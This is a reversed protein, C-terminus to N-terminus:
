SYFWCRAFTVSASSIEIKVPFVLTHLLTGPAVALPGISRILRVETAPTSVLKWCNRSLFLLTELL